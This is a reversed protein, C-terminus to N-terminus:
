RAEGLARRRRRSWWPVPCTGRQAHRVLRFGNATGVVWGLTIILSATLAHDRLLGGIATGGLVSLLIGLTLPLHCPCLLFSGFIWWRGRQETVPAGPGSGVSEADALVPRTSEDNTSM